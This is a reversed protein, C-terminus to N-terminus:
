AVSVIGLYGDVTVTNGTHILMTAHPVGTVCPIGYERAIISGHILKGGRREVIAAALPVVFTMSPDVADCVIEGAKFQFFETPALIVRAQGQALGPGASRGVIQRAKLQAGSIHEAGLSEEPPKEQLEAL